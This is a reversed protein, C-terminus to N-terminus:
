ETAKLSENMNIKVIKRRLILTVMATFLLVIFPVSVWVFWSVGGLTGM